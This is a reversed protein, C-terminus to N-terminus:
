CPQCDIGSLCSDSTKLHKMVRLHHVPLWRGVSFLYLKLKMGTLKSNRVM